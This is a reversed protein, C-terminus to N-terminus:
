KQKTFKFDCLTCGNALTNAREFNVKKSMNKYYIEDLHCFYHTLESCNHESFVEFYICSKINFHYNYSDNKVVDMTWGEKPFSKAMTKKM